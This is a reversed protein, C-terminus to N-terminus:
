RLQMAKLRRDLAFRVDSAIKGFFYARDGRFLVAVDGFYSVTDSPLFDVTRVKGTSDAFTLNSVDVAEIKPSFRVLLLPCMICNHLFYFAAGALFLMLFFIAIVYILINIGNDKASGDFYMSVHRVLYMQILLLVPLMAFSLARHWRRRERFVAMLRFIRIALLFNLSWDAMTENKRIVPSSRVIDQVDFSIFRGVLFALAAAIACCVFVVIAAHGFYTVSTRSILGFFMTLATILAVALLSAISIIRVM